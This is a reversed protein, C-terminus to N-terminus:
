MDTHLLSFSHHRKNKLKNNVDVDAGADILITLCEKDDKEIDAAFHLATYDGRSCRDFVNANEALLLKVCEPKNNYCATMLPTTQRGANGIGCRWNIDAGAAILSKMWTVDGDKAACWLADNKARELCKNVVDHSGKMVQM